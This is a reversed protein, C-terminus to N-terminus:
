KKKLLTSIKQGVPMGFLTSKPEFLRQSPWVGQRGSCLYSLLCVILFYESGKGEFMEIALFICSIPTNAAGCFVGIMGLAALFSHPLEFVSSLVSGLTAGMFFLPVAEGGVFGMGMTVATFLLKYLFAFTPVNGTEFAQRVTDLGRGAYDQSGILLVLAVIVLGGLSARLMHNNRLHKESLLQIRHRLWCYGASLLGFLISALIVKTVSDLTIEPISQITFHEHKTGWASTVLHGTMSALFCPVIAEMRMKGPSTVEMGFIMGTIPTGFASGFGAAIGTMWLLKRDEASVGGYRNVLEALSGGMQVAAGERGTSGGLLHTLIAGVYVIPGMRVLMSGEGQIADFILNNGKESSKGFRMYLFGIVLGGLPLLYLLWPHRDERLDTVYKIMELLFSTTTGVVAGVLIGWCAWRAFTPLFTRFYDKM